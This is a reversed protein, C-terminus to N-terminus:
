QRVPQGPQGPAETPAGGGIVVPFGTEPHQGNENQVYLYATQGARFRGQNITLTIASDTWSRPIQIERVSCASFTAADGLVVRAWSGDAYFDDFYLTASGGISDIWNGLLIRTFGPDAALHTLGRYAAVRASKGDRSLWVDYSGATTTSQQFQIEWLMWTDNPLAFRQPLFEPGFYDMAEYTGGGDKRYTWQRPEFEDGCCYNCDSQVNQGINPPDLAQGGSSIRWNKIQYDSIAGDNDPYCFNVGWSWREWFRIYGKEGNLLARPFNYVAYGNRGLTESSGDAYGLQTKLAQLGQYVHERSLSPPVDGPSSTLSLLTTSSEFDDWAWPAAVAKAGFGAGSLSVTDGNAVTGSVNSITQANGVAPLLLFVLGLAVTKRM